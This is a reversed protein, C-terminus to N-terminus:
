EVVAVEEIFPTRLAREVSLRQGPQLELLGTMLALFSNHRQPISDRLPQLQAIREAAEADGERGPWLVQGTVTDFAVGKAAIRPAVQRGMEDPIRAGCIREMVALHEVDEHVRFLRTGTYLSWLLCGLSWLDIAFDWELGLVVEPARVHRAGARCKDQKSGGPKSAGGFDILVAECPQLPRAALGGPVRPHPVLDFRGDRLMVNTCKIDMHAFGASHMFNLAELLQKTICRIDGLLMGDRAAGDAHMLERLSLALPEFALCFYQDGHIFTGLLRVLLRRCKAKDQRELERLTEAEAEAHRWQRSTAKAVKVAVAAHSARDRCRLVRGSAGEGLLAEM